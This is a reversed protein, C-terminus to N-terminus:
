RARAIDAVKGAYSRNQSEGGYGALGAIGGLFGGIANVGGQSGAGQGYSYMSGYYQAAQQARRYNDQAALQGQALAIPTYDPSTPIPASYGGGGGGGGGSYGTPRRYDNQAYNAFKGGYYKALDASGEAAQYGYQMPSQSLALEAVNLTNNFQNQQQTMLRDSENQQANFTRDAASRYIDASRNSNWNSVNAARDMGSNYNNSYRDAENQAYGRTVESERAGLDTVFDKKLQLEAGSGLLGSKALNKDLAELGKNMQFDYMPSGQYNKPEFARQSPFLNPNAGFIDAGQLKGLQDQNQKYLDTPAGQINGWIDEEPEQAFQEQEYQGIGYQPEAAQPAPAAPVEAAPASPAAGGLKGQKFANAGQQNGGAVMKEYRVRDAYSLRSGQSIAASHKKTYAAAAPNKAKPIKAM